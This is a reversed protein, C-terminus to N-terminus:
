GATAHAGTVLHGALAAAGGLWREREAPGARLLRAEFLQRVIGFPFGQELETARTLLVGFGRREAGARVEELLRSKGIGAPGEVIVVRGAGGAVGRLVADVREIEHRRELLPEM